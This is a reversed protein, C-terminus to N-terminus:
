ERECHCSDYVWSYKRFFFFHFLFSSDSSYQFFQPQHFLITNASACTFRPSRNYELFIHTDPCPVCLFTHFILFTSLSSFFIRSTLLYLIYCFDQYRCEQLPSPRRQYCTVTLPLICPPKQGEKGETCRLISCRGPRKEFCSANRMDEWPATGNVARSTTLVDMKVLVLQQMYCCLM